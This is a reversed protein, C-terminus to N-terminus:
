RRAVVRSDATLPNTQPIPRHRHSTLFQRTTETRYRHLAPAVHGPSTGRHLAGTILKRGERYKRRQRHQGAENM